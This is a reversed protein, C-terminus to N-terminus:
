SVAAPTSPDAAELHDLIAAHVAPLGTVTMHGHGAQLHLRAGPILAATEELLPVPYFRDRDGSLVLTPARIPAACRALDFGDELEITTALDALDTPAVARLGLAAAALAAPLRWPGPPVLTAAALALARRPAGARIRAAIRRMDARTQRSLRCGTSLLALRRVVDPHDAALQQAISGGTSLGLSM